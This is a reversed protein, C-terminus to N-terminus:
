RVSMVFRFVTMRYNIVKTIVRSLSVYNCTLIELLCRLKLNFVNSVYEVKCIEVSHSSVCFEIRKEHLLLEILIQSARAHAPIFVDHESGCLCYFYNLHTCNDMISIIITIVKSCVYNLLAINWLVSFTSLRCTRNSCIISCRKFHFDEYSTM